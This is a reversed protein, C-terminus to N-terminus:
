LEEKILKLLYPFWNGEPSGGTGHFAVVKM